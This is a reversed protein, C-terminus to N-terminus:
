RQAADFDFGIYHQFTSTHITDIGGIGLLSGCGNLQGITGIIFDIGTAQFYHIKGCGGHTILLVQGDKYKIHLIVAVQFLHHRSIIDTLQHM